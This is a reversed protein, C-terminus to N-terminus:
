RTVCVHVITIVGITRWISGWFDVHVCREQTVFEVHLRFITDQLFPAEAGKKKPHPILTPNKSESNHTIPKAPGPSVGRAETRRDSQYRGDQIECCVRRFGTGNARAGLCM